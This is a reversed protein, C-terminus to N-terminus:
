EEEAEAKKPDEGKDKGSEDSAAGSIQDAKKKAADLEEQSVEGTLIFMKPDENTFIKNRSYDFIFITKGDKDKVEYTKSFADKEVEYKDKNEKNWAVWWTPTMAFIRHFDTVKSENTSENMQGKLFGYVEEVDDKSTSIHDVAWAHGDKLISQVQMPNMKLMGDVASKITKLNLFFMYEDLEEEGVINTVSGEPNDISTRPIYNERENIFQEYSPINKM